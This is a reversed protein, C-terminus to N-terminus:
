RDALPNAETLGILYGAVIAADLDTLVVLALLAGIVVLARLDAATFNFTKGAITV